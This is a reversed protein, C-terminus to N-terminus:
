FQQKAHNEMNCDRKEVFLLVSRRGFECFKGHCGSEGQFAIHVTDSLEQFQSSVITSNVRRVKFPRQAAVGANVLPNVM